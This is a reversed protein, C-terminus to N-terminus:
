EVGVWAQWTMELYNIIIYSKIERASYSSINKKYPHHVNVWKNM